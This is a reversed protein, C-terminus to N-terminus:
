MIYYYNNRLATQTFRLRTEHDGWDCDAYQYDGGSSCNFLEVLTENVPTRIIETEFFKPINMLISFIVVPIVYSFVRKTVSETTTVNRYHHPHCM